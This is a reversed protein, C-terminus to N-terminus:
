GNGLNNEYGSELMELQLQICMFMRGAAKAPTFRLFDTELSTQMKSHHQSYINKSCATLFPPLLHFSIIQLGCLLSAKPTIREDIIL